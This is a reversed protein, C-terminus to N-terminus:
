NLNLTLGENFPDWIGTINSKNVITNNSNSIAMYGSYCGGFNFTFLSDQFSIILYPYSIDIIALAAMM